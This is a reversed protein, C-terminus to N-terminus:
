KVAAIAAELDRQEQCGIPCRENMLRLNIKADDLKGMAIFLEGQYELAGLHYRDMSLARGYAAIAADLNGSQRHAYGLLNWADANYRHRKVTMNLNRIAEEYQNNDLLRQAMNIRHEVNSRSIAPTSDNLQDNAHASSLGTLLLSISVISTIRIWKFTATIIATATSNTRMTLFGNFTVNRGDDLLVPLMSDTVIAAIITEGL